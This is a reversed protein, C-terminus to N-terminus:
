TTFLTDNEKLPKQLFSAVIRSFAPSVSPRGLTFQYFATQPPGSLLSSPPHTIFTHQHRCPKSLELSSTFHQKAHTSFPLHLLHSIQLSHMV